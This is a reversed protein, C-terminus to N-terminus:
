TLIISPSFDVHGLQDKWNKQGSLIGKQLIHLCCISAHHNSAKFPLALILFFTLVAAM